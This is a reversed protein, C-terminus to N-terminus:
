FGTTLRQSSIRSFHGISQERGITLDAPEHGTRDRHAVGDSFDIANDRHGFIDRFAFLLFAPQSQQFRYNYIGVIGHHNSFGLRHLKGTRVNDVDILGKGSHHAILRFFNDAFCGPNQLSRVGVALSKLVDSRREFGPLGDQNFDDVVMLVATFNPDFEANKRHSILSSAVVVPYRNLPINSVSFLGFRGEM